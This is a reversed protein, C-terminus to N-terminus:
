QKPVVCTCAVPVTKYVVDLSYKEPDSPCSVKKLFMVRHMVPVSNYDTNESGNIICGSCLCEAVEYVSPIMDHDTELRSRWPSLSRNKLDSSFVWHTFDSCSATSVAHAARHETHRGTRRLFKKAQILLENQPLCGKHKEGIVVDALFFLLFGVRLSSWM